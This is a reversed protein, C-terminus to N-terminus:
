PGIRGLLRVGVPAAKALHAVGIDLSVLGDAECLAAVHASGHYEVPRVTATGTRQVPIWSQRDTEERMVSEELYM